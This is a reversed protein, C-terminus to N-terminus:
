DGKSDIGLERRIDPPLMTVLYRRAYHLRSKVTGMDVGTAGAIEAYTMDQEFRLTLVERHLPPLRAVARQVEEYLLHWHVVEDPPPGALAHTLAIADRRQAPNEGLEEDRLRARLHDYCLNRVIRYLYPLVHTTSRVRGLNVYLSFFADQLIDDENGIAGVLGTVFARVQDELSRQMRDFARRDGARARVLLLQYTRRESDMAGDSLCVTSAPPTNLWRSLLPSTAM